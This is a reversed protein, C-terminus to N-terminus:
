SSVAPVSIFSRMSVSANQIGEYIFRVDEDAQQLAIFYLLPLYHDNTPIALRSHPLSHYDILSDTKKRCLCDKLAADAEEAWSFPKADMNAFDAERLNHVINGSCLILVGEERLPALEKALGYHYEAPKKYDISLQFVPIDAAPYIHRLVAWAGHDVGWKDNCGIRTEAVMSMAMRAYEPAGKCPYTLEYLERPFGYFDYIIEPTETCSVYTGETLWHASVALIARPTPISAAVQQLSRTYDNDLIANMPSGHGVFLVPMPQTM